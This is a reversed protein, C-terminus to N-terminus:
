VCLIITGCTYTLLYLLRESSSCYVVTTLYENAPCNLGFTTTLQKCLSGSDTDVCSHTEVADNHVYTHLQEKHVPTVSGKHLVERRGGARVM